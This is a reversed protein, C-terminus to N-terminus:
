GLCKTQSPIYSSSMIVVSCLPVELIPTESNLWYEGQETITDPMQHGTGYFPTEVDPLHPDCERCCTDICCDDQPKFVAVIIQLSFFFCQLLQKLM